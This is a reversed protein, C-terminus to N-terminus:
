PTDDAPMVARQLEAKLAPWSTHLDERGRWAFFVAGISCGLAFSDANSRRAWSLLAPLLGVAVACFFPLALHRM